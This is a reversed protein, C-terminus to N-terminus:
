HMVGNSRDRSTRAAIKTLVLRLTEHLDDFRPDAIMTEIDTRMSDDGATALANALAFRAENKSQDDARRKLEELLDRAPAGRAEPVSLARAIGERLVPHRAIRLYKVLITVVTPYPTRTNVLDWVSEVPYGAKALEALLPDQEPKLEARLKAVEASRKREREQQRRVFEPDNNLRALWEKVTMSQKKQANM